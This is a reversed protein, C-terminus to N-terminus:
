KGAGEFKQAAKLVEAAPLIIGTLTEGPADLLGGPTKNGVNRLMFVGLVKGELTFAPAGLSSTTMNADPVYFRRPQEVVAAIREVSASFARDAASGLRNLAVVQDLVEAKGANTLDVATLAAAPKTKPRVFALDLDTDRGAVEAVAESGDAFLMKVETLQADVQVRPDRSAMNKLAQSPDLASLSVATLGSPAVLTGSVTHHTDNTQVPKGSVSVKAQVVTQLTVVAKQYQNFIARGRTALEDAQCAMTWCLAPLVGGM